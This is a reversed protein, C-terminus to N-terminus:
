FNDPAAVNRNLFLNKFYSKKRCPQLAREYKREFDNKIKMMFLVIKIVMQFKLKCM